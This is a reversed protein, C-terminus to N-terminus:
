GALPMGLDAFASALAKATALVGSADRRGILDSLLLNAARPNADARAVAALLTAEAGTIRPCCWPAVPIVRESVAALDRMMTRLLLLPRRFGRGFATVFAHAAAADDLGHAGMQRIGFLLLRASPDDPQPARLTAALTATSPM